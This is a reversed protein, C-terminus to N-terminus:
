FTDKIETYDGSTRLTVTVDATGRNRWFWGHNGDFAAELEGEQSPAGRGKEYSTSKGGGNGHLDFNVVGGDVTWSFKAKAGARMVLKVEVGKGPALTVVYEDSRGAATGAPVKAPAPIVSPTAMEAAAEAKATAADAQAERALQMKIEGMQTLGLVRGLGTPDVGYEGPLVATVLIVVAAALAILTSGILQRTTPLEGRTPINADYM